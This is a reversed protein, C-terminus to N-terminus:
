AFIIGPGAVRRLRQPPITCRDPQAHDASAPITPLRHTRAGRRVHSTGRHGGVDRARRRPTGARRGRRRPVRGSLFVRDGISYPVPGSLPNRVPILIERRSTRKRFSAQRDSSQWGSCCCAATRQSASRGCSRRRGDRRVRCRCFSAKALVGGM